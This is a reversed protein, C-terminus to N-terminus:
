GSPYQASHRLGLSGAIREAVMRAGVLNRATPGVQLSALAGMVINSATSM